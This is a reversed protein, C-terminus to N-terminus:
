KRGRNKEPGRAQNNELVGRSKRDRSLIGIVREGPTIARGDRATKIRHCPRCLPQLNSEVLRLDPREAIPIIHDVEMAARTRGARQCMVCLPDRRLISNRLRHWAADYGREVASGRKKDRERDREAWRKRPRPEYPHAACRPSGHALAYCGPASCVRPASIAM